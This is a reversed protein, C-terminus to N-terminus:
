NNEGEEDDKIQFYRLAKLEENQKEIRKNLNKIKKSLELQKITSIIIGMIFGILISCIILFALSIEFSYIFFKIHVIEWNQGAFAVFLLILLMILIFKWQM